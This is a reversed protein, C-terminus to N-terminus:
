TAEEELAVHRLSEAVATLAFAFGSFFVAEFDDSSDRTALQARDAHQELSRATRLCFDRTVNREATAIM